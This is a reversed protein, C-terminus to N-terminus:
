VSLYRDELRSEDRSYQSMPRCADYPLIDGDAADTPDLIYDLGKRIGEDGEEVNGFRQHVDESIAPLSSLEIDELVESTDCFGSFHNQHKTSGAAPASRKELDDGVLPLFGDSPFGVRSGTSFDISWTRTCWLQRRPRIRGTRSSFM